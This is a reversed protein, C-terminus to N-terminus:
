IMKYANINEFAEENIEYIYPIDIDIDVNNGFLMNYDYYKKVIFKEEDNKNNDGLILGIKEYDEYFYEQLLPIINKKFIMSLTNLDPNNILPIFYSHGIMHERDYLAAIRMNIKKLMDKISVGEVYVDNLIEENPLVEVFDFRRRLATDILAISRDATNMTGLIYINDMVGFLKKSYPLRLKLEEKAGIRKSEEILTILEGFISSINGRNIEDIIFVFNSKRLIYYCM